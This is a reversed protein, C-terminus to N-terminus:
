AIGKAGICQEVTANVESYLPRRRNSPKLVPDTLSPVYLKSPSQALREADACPWFSVTSRRFPRIWLIRLLSSRWDFNGEGEEFSINTRREADSRISSTTPMRMKSLGKAERSTPWDERGSFFGYLSSVIM